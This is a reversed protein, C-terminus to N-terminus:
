GLFREADILLRRYTPFDELVMGAGRAVASVPDEAVWARLRLEESLRRDLGQLLSGGGALCVGNEMLDAVIEPPAEDLLDRATEIITELPRALAERIEVSSVEVAQPLGSVLSRGRVQMTREEPLPYASGIEMKINEAMRPGILLNYKNRIYQIIAEDMEDGAVRLSRSIVVGGMSLVAIETTGGGIDVIMTGQVDHIPLGSGLAAALPEEILHVERAGANLAADYVARMEVETVGAPIGVVVRPRPFPVFSQEHAKLILYELLATTIDFEAIVGDRVPRIVQLSAPARGVMRKAESGVYLPRRTRKDVAVWSPELLVIGKGRVYVLTNATGLDIGMDLAFLGFLWNLPNFGL